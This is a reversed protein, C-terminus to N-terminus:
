SLLLQRRLLLLAMARARARVADRGGRVRLEVVEGRSEGGAVAVYVLGVPKEPTGGGPGAVGTAAVGWDVEFLRRAGAAMAAATEPSVAGFRRLTDAPVQLLEHKVRNDYAVVAGTFVASAGPIRTLEASILGGTCSEACGVRLGRRHLEAVVNAALDTEGAPLADSGFCARAAEVAASLEADDGGSLFVRTGEAGACFAVEVALPALVPELRKQISLEPGGAVLFGITHCHAAAAFSDRLLPLVAEFMPQLEVPPGPLLLVTHEKRSYRARFLLGPASGNHNELIQAGAPVDAQRFLEKPIPGSGHRRRYYRRLGDALVPDRRLELGFFRAAAERTLDDCTPGLGGTVIILDAELAARHLAGTLEDFADGITESRRVSLGAEHLLRGIAALNSNVAAGKLLETGTAIVVINM